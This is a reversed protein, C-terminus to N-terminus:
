GRRFLTTSEDLYGTNFSLVMRYDSQNPDTSHELWSPFLILLGNRCPMDEWDPSSHGGTGGLVEMMKYQQIPSHFKLGASNPAVDLYLAGSVISLRHNHRQVAQGKHMINFWNNAIVLKEVCIKRAYDDVCDQIRQKIHKSVINSLPHFGNGYSSEGGSLLFHPVTATNKCHEVLPKLELETFQYEGIITPFLNHTKMTRTGMQGV